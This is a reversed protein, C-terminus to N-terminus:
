NVSIKKTPKWRKLLEKYLLTQATEERSDQKTAREVSTRLAEGDFSTSDIHELTPILNKEIARQVMQQNTQETLLGDMMSLFEIITGHIEDLSMDEPGNQLRNIEEKLGSNWSKGIMKRIKEGEHEVLWRLLALLEYSVVFPSTHNNSFQDDHAM